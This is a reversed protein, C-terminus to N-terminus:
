YSDSSLVEGNARTGLAWWINLSISDKIFKVSGDALLTNVGGSHFSQANVYTSGDTQCGVCNTRCYSFAYQRSNPPVITNFLSFGTHGVAWTYGKNTDIGTTNTLSWAQSCQNLGALVATPNMNADTFRDASNGGNSVGNGPKLTPTVGGNVGESFAITNSSGDTIDRLGYSTVLGFVGSSPLPVAVGGTPNSNWNAMDTETGLSAYYNNSHQVGGVSTASRGILSNSDSPCLFGNVTSNAATSNTVASLGNFGGDLVGFNFNCSSYLPQQEMYPLMMALSSWQSWGVNNASGCGMPFRDNTSHYNHIGLGIQKLNNVCQSRRAAERAAQVAPLLLAILVAIIAIVVLLEILTFGRRSRLM